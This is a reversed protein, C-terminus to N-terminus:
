PVCAEQDVPPTQESVRAGPFKLLGRGPVDTEGDELFLWEPVRVRSSLLSLLLSHSPLSFSSLSIFSLSSSLFFFFLLRRFYLSFSSLFSILLFFFSSLLSSLFSFFLPPLLHFSYTPSWPSSPIRLFCTNWSVFGPSEPNPDWLVLKGPFSRVRNDRGSDATM